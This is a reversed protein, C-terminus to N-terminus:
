SCLAAYRAHGNTGLYGEGLTTIEGPPLTRCPGEADNEYVVKVTLTVACGNDAQTYRWSEHLVVCSPAQESPAPAATAPAASIAGTVLLAALSAAATATRRVPHRPTRNRNGIPM